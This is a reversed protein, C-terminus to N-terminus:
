AKAQRDSGTVGAPYAEDLLSDVLRLNAAYRSILEDTLTSALARLRTVEEPGPQGGQRSRLVALEAQRRTSARRARLEDLPLEDLSTDAPVDPV